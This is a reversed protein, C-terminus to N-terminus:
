THILSLPQGPQPWLNLWASAPALWDAQAVGFPWALAWGQAVGALAAALWRLGLHNRASPSQVM